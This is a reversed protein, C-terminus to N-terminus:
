ETVGFVLLLTYEPRTPDRDTSWTDRGRAEISAIIETVNGRRCWGRGYEVSAGEDDECYGRTM